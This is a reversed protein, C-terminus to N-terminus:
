NDQTQVMHHATPPPLLLPPPPPAAAAAITTTTTTCACVKYAKLWPAFHKGDIVGPAPVPLHM